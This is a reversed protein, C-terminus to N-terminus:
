APLLPKYDFHRADGCFRVESPAQLCSLDLHKELLANAQSRNLAEVRVGEFRVDAVVRFPVRTNYPEKWLVDAFGSWEVTFVIGHRYLFRISNDYCNEHEFVFFTPPNIPLNQDTFFGAKGELHQWDRVEFTMSQINLSPEWWEGDFEQGKCEIFLSWFFRGQTDFSDINATLTCYEPVLDFKRDLLHIM